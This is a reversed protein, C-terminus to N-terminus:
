GIMLDALQTCAAKWADFIEPMVAAGLILQM